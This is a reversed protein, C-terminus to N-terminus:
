PAVVDWSVAGAMGDIRRWTTARWLRWPRSAYGPNFFSGQLWLPRILARSLGYRREAARSVRLIVPKGLHAEVRAVFDRLSDGVAPGAPPADCDDPLDIDIAAPLADAARPVTANFADAQAAGDTCLSYLHVAGRRLGAEPLAQWNAEFDPDRRGAGATAVLYAFDAGAARVSGWEVTGPHEGMDVGQMPYRAESPHWRGAASWAFVVAVIVGAVGTAVRWDAM